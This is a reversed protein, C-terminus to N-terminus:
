NVVKNSIYTNSTNAVCEAKKSMLPKQIIGALCILSTSKFKELYLFNCMVYFTSTLCLSDRRVRCHKKKWIKKM